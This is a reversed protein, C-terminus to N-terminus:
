RNKTEDVETLEKSVKKLTTYLKEMEGGGEKLKYYLPREGVSLILCYYQYIILKRTLKKLKCANVLDQM